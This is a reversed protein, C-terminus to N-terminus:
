NPTTVGVPSGRAVSSDALSESVTSSRTFMPVVASSIAAANPGVDVVCSAAPTCACAFTVLRPGTNMPDLARTNPNRREPEVIV